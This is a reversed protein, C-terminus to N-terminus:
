YILIRDPYNERAVTDGMYLGYARRERGHCSVVVPTEELLKQFEPPLGDIADVVLEDFETPPGDGAPMRALAESRRVMRDFEHEDPGDGMLAVTAWATLLILAVAGAIMMVLGQAGELTPPHLVLLLMGVTLMSIAAAKLPARLTEKM